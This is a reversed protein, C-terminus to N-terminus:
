RPLWASAADAPLRQVEFLTAILAPHEPPRHPNYFEWVVTGDPALELARGADSETVLTDGNPLRQVAGCTRSFLPTADTGSWSSREAGTVPDITLVRSRRASPHNDFLLISGDALLHPDHQAEFTGKTSWVVTGAIPDLVGIASRARMSFLLNGAKFAPNLAAQSGDLLDLSNTHFIDGAEHAAPRWDDFPSARYADLLSVTKLV